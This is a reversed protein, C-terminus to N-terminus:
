CPDNVVHVADLVVARHASGAHEFGDLEDHRGDVHANAVGTHSGSAPGQCDQGAAAVDDDTWVVADQERGDRDETAGDLDPLDAVRRDHAMRDRGDEVAPVHEARGRRVEGVAQAERTDAFKDVGGGQRRRREGIGDV